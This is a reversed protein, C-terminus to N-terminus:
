EGSESVEQRGSYAVLKLGFQDGFRHICGLVKRIMDPRDRFEPPVLPSVALEAARRDLGDMDRNHADIAERLSDRALAEIPLVRVWSARQEATLAATAEMWGASDAALLEAKAQGEEASTAYRVVRWGILDTKGQVVHTIRLAYDSLSESNM